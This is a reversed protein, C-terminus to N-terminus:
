ISKGFRIEEEEFEDNINKVDKSSNKFCSELLPTERKLVKKWNTESFLEEILYYSDILPKPVAADAESPRMAILENAELLSRVYVYANHNTLIHGSVTDFFVKSDNKPSVNIHSLNFHNSIPSDFPFQPSPSHNIYDSNIPGVHASITWTDMRRGFKPYRAVRQYKGGLQFPSASDYSIRMNPNCNKRIGRQMATFLVAWVPQSVGLMHIWDRGAEFAGDDRMILLMELLTLIGMKGDIGNKKDEKIGRWGVSGAMAWGDFKIDKIAKWWKISDKANTGQVVSLWKTKGQKNDKIFKLNEVSLKILEDTTCKHFPTHANQPLKAWLPMDITMAYNSHLELWKVIFHRVDDAYRWGECVEAGTKCKYLHSLAKFSGKGIQFGGSDGLITVKEDRNTVSCGINRLDTFQGASYLGYGYYWLKSRPNIFDLDTLKLNSPFARNKIAKNSYVDKAFGHQIAPLYIAFNDWRPTLDISM